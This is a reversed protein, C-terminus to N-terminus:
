AALSKNDCHTVGTEEKELFRHEKEGKNGTRSLTWSAVATALRQKPKHKGLVATLCICHCKPHQAEHKCISGNLDQLVKVIGRGVTLPFTVMLFLYSIYLSIQFM